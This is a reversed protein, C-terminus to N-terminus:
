AHKEGFILRVFDIIIRYSNGLYEVFEYQRNATGNLLKGGRPQGDPYIYPPQEITDNHTKDRDRLDIFEILGTSYQQVRIILERLEERKRAEQELVGLLSVFKKANLGNIGQKLDFCVKIKRGTEDLLERGRLLYLHWLNRFEVSDDSIPINGLPKHLHEELQLYTEIFQALRTVIHARQKEELNSNKVIEEAAKDSQSISKVGFAVMLRGPRKEWIGDKNMVCHYDDVIIKNKM